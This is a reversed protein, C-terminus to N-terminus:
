HEVIKKLNKSEDIWVQIEKESPVRRVISPRAADVETTDLGATALKAAYSRGLGETDAITM